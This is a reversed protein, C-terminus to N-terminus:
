QTSNQGQSRRLNLFTWCFYAVGVGIADALWDQWEGYRWGTAAQALEIVLGFFLICLIMRYPNSPYAWLGLMSLTLFALAHQAKDWWDFAHPLYPSPLLSIVTISLGTFWFALEVIQKM